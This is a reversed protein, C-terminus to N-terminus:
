QNPLEAVSYSTNIKRHLIPDEIELEYKEAPEIEGRVAITGCFMATGAPLDNGQGCYRDLLDQPHRMLKLPGEQYLRKTGAKWAFSRIIIEDWHDAIDELRWLEASVPKACLQKSITIGITEVKRDTHDSGIGVWLGSPLSFLVPEVEGSSHGGVVEIIPRQTLLSAAARYFMPTAKPRPVGLKELEAIHAEMAASDRGSWGAVVLAEIVADFRVAGNAGIGTFSLPQVPGDAVMKILGGKM